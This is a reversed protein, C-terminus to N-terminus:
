YYQTLYSGEMILTNLLSLIVEKIKIEVGFTMLELIILNLWFHNWGYVVM